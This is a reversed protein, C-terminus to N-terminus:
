IPPLSRKESDTLEPHWVDIILILRIDSGNHWVEHEFSDDFLIVEGEKWYRIEEAVRICTDSPIILGLHARLRSNTPGCHPWVHTGPHMVSFKVQGRKCDRADPFSEIIKCTEPCKKCNNLLKFGRTFLEFQAWKGTDRLDETEEVFYKKENLLAVGEDRITKWNTKLLHFFRSYATGSASWWPKATLRNVNYLSRQYKSLFVKHTVGDEYVKIAEKTQGLRTLADGLHFYFRGDIVGPAKTKIGAQLYKIAGTLDNEKVKLIFGYHVQAFGNDPWRALVKQLVRKAETLRNSTLLTVALENLYKSDNPFRDILKKHAYIARSYVGSFRILDICRTGVFAFIVDSITSNQLLDYYSAIANQLLVNNRKIEALKDLARARGYKVEANNPLKKM